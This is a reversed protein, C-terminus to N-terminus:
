LLSFLIHGIPIGNNLHIEVLETTMYKVVWCRIQYMCHKLSRKFLFMECQPWLSTGNRSASSPQNPCRQFNSRLNPWRQCQRLRCFVIYLWYVNLCSYHLSVIWVILKIKNWSTDSSGGLPWVRKIHCM